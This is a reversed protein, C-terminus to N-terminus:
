STSFGFPDHFPLSRSLPPPIRSRERPWGGIVVEGADGAITRWPIIENKIM